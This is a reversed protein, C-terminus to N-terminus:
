GRRAAAFDHRARDRRPAEDLYLKRTTAQWRVRAAPDVDFLLRGAQAVRGALELPASDLVLLDVVGPLDAAVSWADVPRGFWAAIDLDSRETATGGVRSGHLFAFRAGAAQLREGVVDLDVDLPPLPSQPM